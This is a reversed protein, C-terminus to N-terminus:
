NQIGLCPDSKQSCSQIEAAFEGGLHVFQDPHKMVKVKVESSAKNTQLVLGWIFTSLSAQGKWSVGQVTCLGKADTKRRKRLWILWTLWLFQSVRSISSQISSNQSLHWTKWCPPDFIVCYKWNIFQFLERTSIMQKRTFCSTSLRDESYFPFWLHVHPANSKM